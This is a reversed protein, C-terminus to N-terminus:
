VETNNNFRRIWHVKTEKSKNEKDCYYSAYARISSPKESFDGNKYCVIRDVYVYVDTRAHISFVEEYRKKSELFELRGLM